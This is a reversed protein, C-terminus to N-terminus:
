CGADEDEPGLEGATDAGVPEGPVAYRGELWRGLDINACRRSCFPRYEAVSLKGCIPCRPAKRASAPGKAKGPRGAGRKVGGERVNV